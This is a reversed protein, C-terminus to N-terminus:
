VRKIRENKANGYMAFAQVLTRYMIKKFPLLRSTFRIPYRPFPWLTSKIKDTLCLSLCSSLFRTNKQVPAHKLIGSGFYFPWSIYPISQFYPLVIFPFMRLALIRSFFSTFSSSFSDFPFPSTELFVNPCSPLCDIALFPSYSIGPIGCSLGYPFFWRSFFQAWCRTTSEGLENM